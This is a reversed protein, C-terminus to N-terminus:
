MIIDRCQITKESWDKEYVDTAVSVSSCSKLTKGNVFSPWSAVVREDKDRDSYICQSESWVTVSETMCSSSDVSWIEGKM